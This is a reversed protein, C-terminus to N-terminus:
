RLMIEDGIFNDSQTEPPPPPPNDEFYDYYKRNRIYHIRKAELEEREADSVEILPLLDIKDYNIPIEGPISLSLNAIMLIIFMSCLVITLIKIAPTFVQEDGSVAIEEIDDM